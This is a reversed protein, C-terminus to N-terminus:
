LTPTLLGCQVETQLVLPIPRETDSMSVPYLNIALLPALLAPFWQWLLTRFPKVDTLPGPVPGPGLTLSLTQLCELPPFQQWTPVQAGLSTPTKVLFRIPRLPWPM